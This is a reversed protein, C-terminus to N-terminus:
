ILSYDRLVDYTMMFIFQFPRKFCLDEDDFIHLKIEYMLLMPGFFITNVIIGFFLILYGFLFIDIIKICCIMILVLAITHMRLPENFKIECNNTKVWCIKEDDYPSVNAKISCGEITGWYGYSPICTTTTWNSDFMKLSDYQNSLKWTINLLSAYFFLHKVKKFIYM